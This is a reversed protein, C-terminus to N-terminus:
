LGFNQNAQVGGSAQATAVLSLRTGPLATRVFNDGQMAVVNELSPPRNPIVVTTFSASTGPLSVEARAEQCSAVAHFQGSRLAPMPLVFEGNGNGTVRRGVAHGASNELGILATVFTGFGPENTFCPTHAEDALVVRRMTRDHDVPRHTPRELPEDRNQDLM